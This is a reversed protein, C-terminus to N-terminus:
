QLHIQKTASDSRLPVVRPPSFSCSKFLAVDSCRALAVFACQCLSSVSVLHSLTQCLALDASVLDSTVIADAAPPPTHPIRPLSIM